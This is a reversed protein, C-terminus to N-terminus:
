EAIADFHQGSKNVGLVYDVSAHRAWCNSPWRSEHDIVHDAGLEQVM